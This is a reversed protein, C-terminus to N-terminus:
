VDSRLLNRRFPKAMEALDGRREASPSPVGSSHRPGGSRGEARREMLPIKGAACTAPFFSKFREALPPFWSPVGTGEQVKGLVNSPPRLDGDLQRSRVSSGAIRSAAFRCRRRLAAVAAPRPVPAIEGSRALAGWDAGGSRDASCRGAPGLSGQAFPAPVALPRSQPITRLQRVGQPHDRGRDEGMGQPRQRLGHGLYM